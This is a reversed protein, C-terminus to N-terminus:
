YLRLKNKIKDILKAKVPEDIGVFGNEDLEKRQQDSLVTEPEPIRPEFDPCVCESKVDRYIYIPETDSYRQLTQVYQMDSMSCYGSQVYQQVHRDGISRALQLYLDNGKREILLRDVDAQLKDMDFKLKTREIDQHENSDTERKFGIKNFYEDIEKQTPIDSFVM